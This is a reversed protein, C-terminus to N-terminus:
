FELFNIGMLTLFLWTSIFSEATRSPVVRSLVIFRFGCVVLRMLLHAGLISFFSVVGSNPLVVLLVSFM